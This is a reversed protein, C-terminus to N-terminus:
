AALILLFFNIDGNIISRSDFNLFYKLHNLSTKLVSVNFNKKKSKSNQVLTGVKANM